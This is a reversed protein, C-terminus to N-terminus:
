IRVAGRRSSTGSSNGRKSRNNRQRIKAPLFIGGGYPCHRDPRIHYLGYRVHGTKPFTWADPPKRLPMSFASVGHCIRASIKIQGMGKGVTQNEPAYPFVYFFGSGLLRQHNRYHIPKNRRFINTLLWSAHCSHRNHFDPRGCLYCLYANRKENTYGGQINVYCDMYLTLFLNM